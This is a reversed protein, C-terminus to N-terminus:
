PCVVFWPDRQTRSFYPICYPVELAWIVGYIMTDTKHHKNHSRNKHWNCVRYLDHFGVTRTFFITCPSLRPNWACQNNHAYLWTQAYFGWTQADITGYINYINNCHDIHHWIRGWTVSTHSDLHNGFINLVHSLHPDSIEPVHYEHYYFEWTQAYITFIYPTFAIIPFKPRSRGCRVCTGHRSWVM